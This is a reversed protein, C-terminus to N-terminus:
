KKLQALENKAEELAKELSAIKAETERIKKERIVKAKYEVVTLGLTKAKQIEKAERKARAKAKREVEAKLFKEWETEQRVAEAELEEATKVFDKNIVMDPYNKEAIAIAEEATSAEVDTTYVRYNKDGMMYEQFNIADMMEIKYTAM